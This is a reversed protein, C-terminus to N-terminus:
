SENHREPMNRCILALTHERHRMFCDTIPPYLQLIRLLMRSRVYTPGDIECIQLKLLGISLVVIWVETTGKSELMAQPSM